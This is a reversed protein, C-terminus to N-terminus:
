RRGKPRFWSILWILGIGLMCVAGYRESIAADQQETIRGALIVSTHIIGVIITLMAWAVSWILAKVWWRM